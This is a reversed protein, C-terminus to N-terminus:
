EWLDAPEDGATADDGQTRLHEGLKRWTRSETSLGFLRVTFSHVLM